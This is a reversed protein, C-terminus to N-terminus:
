CYSCSSVRDKLVDLVEELSKRPMFDCRPNKGLPNQIAVSTRDTTAHDEQPDVCLNEITPNSICPNPNKNLHLPSEVANEPLTFNNRFLFDEWTDGTKSLHSFVLIRILGHHFLSSLPNFKQRQYIKSMKQLSMFLYFPMNLKFGLFIMLLRVHYLFVLGYRGECTIFQKLILLLDHWQPKFLTILTGKPFCSSKKSVMLFNWPVREIKANKFWREGEQSLGTAQAISDETVELQLDGIKAKFGDFYQTFDQAVVLNYGEFWKIFIDWGHAVIDGIVDDHSLLAQSGNPEIRVV